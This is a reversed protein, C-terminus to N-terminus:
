LLTFTYSRPTFTPAPVFSDHYSLEFKLTVAPFGICFGFPLRFLSRACNSEARYVVGCVSEPMIHLSYLTSVQWMLGDM